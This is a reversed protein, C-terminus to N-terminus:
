HCELLFRLAAPHEPCRFLYVCGLDGWMLGARDESDLQLVLAMERHCSPCARDSGGQVYSPHGGIRSSLGLTAPRDSHEDEGEDPLSEGLSLLTGRHAPRTTEPSPDALTVAAGEHPAPHFRLCWKGDDDDFGWPRCTMCYFFSFLGTAGTEHRLQARNWQFVFTLARGCRCIPWADGAEAYPAGGFKTDLPGRGGDDHAERVTVVTAPLPTEPM